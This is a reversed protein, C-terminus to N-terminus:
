GNMAREELLPGCAMAEMVIRGFTECWQSSTRYLFCDVSRLFAPLEAPRVLPLLKVSHHGAVAGDLCTGGAVRTECGLDALRRYVEPDDEAHKYAVDRSARGVVFLRESGAHDGPPRPGASFREVISDQM